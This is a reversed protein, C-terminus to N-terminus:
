KQAFRKYRKMFRHHAGVCHLDSCCIGGFYIGTLASQSLPVLPKYRKAPSVQTQRVIFVPACVQAKTARWVLLSLCTLSYASYALWTHM